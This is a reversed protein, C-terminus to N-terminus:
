GKFMAQFDVTTGYISFVDKELKDYVQKTMLVDELARHAGQYPIKYYLVLDKLSHHHLNRLVKRAIRMTDVFDNQFKIGSSRWLSDYIFNVDFHVNHGILIDKGVFDYFDPIVEENSRAGSVM